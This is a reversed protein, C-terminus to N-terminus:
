PGAEDIARVSDRWWTLANELAEEVTAGHRDPSHGNGINIQACWRLGDPMVEAYAGAPRGVFKPWSERKWVFKAGRWCFEQHKM